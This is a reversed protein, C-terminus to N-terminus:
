FVYITDPLHALGPAFDEACHASRVDCGPYGQRFDRGFHVYRAITRRLKELWYLVLQSRYMLNLETHKIWVTETKSRMPQKIDADRQDDPNPSLNPDRAREM